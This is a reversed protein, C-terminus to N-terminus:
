ELVLVREETTQGNLTDRARGERVGRQAGLEILECGTKPV